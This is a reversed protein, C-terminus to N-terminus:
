HEARLLLLWNGAARASAFLRSQQLRFVEAFLSSKDRRGANRLVAM